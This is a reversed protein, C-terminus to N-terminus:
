ARNEQKQEWVDLPLGSIVQNGFSAKSLVQWRKIVTEGESKRLAIGIEEGNLLYSITFTGNALEEEIESDSRNEVMKRFLYKNLERLM